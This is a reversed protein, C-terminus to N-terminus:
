GTQGQHSGQAVVNGADGLRWEHSVDPVTTPRRQDSATGHGQAPIDAATNTRELM